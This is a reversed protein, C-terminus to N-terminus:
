KRLSPDSEVEKGYRSNVENEMKRKLSEKGSVKVKPDSEDM